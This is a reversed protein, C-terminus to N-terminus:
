APQASPTAHAGTGANSGQRTGGDTPMCSCPPAMSRCALRRYTLPGRWKPSLSPTAGKRSAGCRRHNAEGAVERAVAIRALRVGGSKRKRGGPAPAQQSGQQSLSNRSPLSRTRFPAEVRSPPAPTRTEAHQQQRASGTAPHLAFNPRLPPRDSTRESM